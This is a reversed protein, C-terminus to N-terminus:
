AAVVSLRSARARVRSVAAQEALTLRELEDPDATGAVQTLRTAMEMTRRRLAQDVTHAAYFAYSAPNAVRHDYLKALHATFVHIANEGKAVETGIALALVAAPDPAVGQEVLQVILLYTARTIPSAIDEATILPVATRATELDLWMCSAVFAQEASLIPIPPLNPNLGAVGPQVTHM